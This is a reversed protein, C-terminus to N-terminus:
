DATTADLLAILDDFRDLTATAQLTNANDDRHYGYSVWVFPAGAAHAAGADARSDGIMWADVASVGLTNCAHLVPLAHPKREDLTDGGITMAFWDGIGFQQLLDIALAKPKNTVCALAIGRSHCTRLTKVVDPYPVGHRGNEQQYHRLFTALVDDVDARGDGDLASLAREILKLAGGGVWHRTNALGATPLEHDRLAKDLAAAIDPASDVLTGDLDLLLALPQKLM